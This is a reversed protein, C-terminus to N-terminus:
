GSDEGQCKQSEVANTNDHGGVFGEPEHERHSLALFVKVLDSRNEEPM